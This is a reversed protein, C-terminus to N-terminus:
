SQAEVEVPAPIIFVPGVPEVLPREAQDAYFAESATPASPIAQASFRGRRCSSSRRARAKAANAQRHKRCYHFSGSPTGCKRCKRTIM